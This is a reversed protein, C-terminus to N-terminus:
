HPQAPWHRLEKWEEDGAPLEWLCVYKYAKLKISREIDKTLKGPNNSYIAKAFIEGDADDFYEACFRGDLGEERLDALITKAWRRGKLEMKVREEHEPRRRLFDELEREDDNKDRSFSFGSEKAGRFGFRMGGSPPGDKSM